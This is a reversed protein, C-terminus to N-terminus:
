FWNELLYFFRPLSREQAKKPNNKDLSHTHTSTGDTEPETLPIPDFQVPIPHPALQLNQCGVLWTATLCVFVLHTYQKKPM